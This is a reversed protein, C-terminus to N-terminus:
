HENGHAKKQRNSAARIHCGKQNDRLHHGDATRGLCYPCMDIPLPANAVRSAVVDPCDMVKHPGLCYRCDFRVKQPPDPSRTRSNEQRRGEHGKRTAQQKWHAVQDQLKMMEVTRPDTARARDVIAENRTQQIWNYVAKIMRNGAEKRSTALWGDVLSDRQASTGAYSPGFVGVIDKVLQFGLDIRPDLTILSYLIDGIKDAREVVEQPTPTGPVARAVDVLMELKRRIHEGAHARTPLAEELTVFISDLDYCRTIRESLRQPLTMSTKALQVLAATTAVNGTRFHTAADKWNYYALTDEATDGRTIVLKPFELNPARMRGANGMNVDQVHERKLKQYLPMIETFLKTVLDGDDNAYAARISPEEAIRVRETMTIVEPDQNASGRVIDKLLQISSAFKHTANVVSPSTDAMRLRDENDIDDLRLPRVAENAM